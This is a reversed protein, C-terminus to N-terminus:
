RAARPRHRVQDAREVHVVQHARTDNSPACAVGSAGDFQQHEVDVAHEGVPPQIEARAALHELDKVHAVAVADLQQM